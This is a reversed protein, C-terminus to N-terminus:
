KEFQESWERATNKVAFITSYRNAEDDTHYDAIAKRYQRYLKDYVGRPTLAVWVEGKENVRM